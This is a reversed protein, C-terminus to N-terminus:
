KAQNLHFLFGFTKGSFFQFKTKSINSKDSHFSGKHIKCVYIRLIQYYFYLETVFHMVLIVLLYKCICQISYIVMGGAGILWGDM